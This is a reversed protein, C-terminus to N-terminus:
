PSLALPNIVMVIPVSLATGASSAAYTVAPIVKEHRTSVPPKSKRVPLCISPTVADKDSGNPRGSKGKPCERHPEKVSGQTSLGQAGVREGPAAAKTESNSQSGKM